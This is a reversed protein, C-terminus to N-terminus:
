PNLFEIISLSGERHTIFAFRNDSTTEIYQPEGFTGHEAVIQKKRIDIISISHAIEFDSMVLFTDDATVDIGFPFHNPTRIYDVFRNANLDFIQISEQSGITVYAHSDTHDIAIQEIQADLTTNHLQVQNRTDYVVFNQSYYDTFLLMEASNTLCVDGPSIFNDISNLFLRKSAFLSDVNLEFLRSGSFYCVDNKFAIAQQQPDIRDQHVSDIIDEDVSFSIVGPSYLAAMNSTNYWLGTLIIGWLRGNYTSTAISVPYGLSDPIRIANFKVDKTEPEYVHVSYEYQDLLYVKSNDDSVAIGSLDNSIHVKNFTYLTLWESSAARGGSNEVRVYGSRAAPSVQVKILTDSLILVTGAPGDGIYVQTSSYDFHAGYINLVSDPMMCTHSIGSIIPSPAIVTIPDSEGFENGALRTVRILFVGDDEFTISHRNVVGNRFGVVRGVSQQLPGDSSLRASDNFTTVRNEFADIATIRIDFPVNVTQSLLTGGNMSEIKFSSLPGHHFTIILKQQIEVDDVFATVTASGVTTPAQLEQTYVGDGIYQVTGLLQGATTRFEIQHGENLNNLLSDKPVISLMTTSKGDATLSDTNVHFQTASPSIGLRRVQFTNSNGSEPGNTNRVTFRFVGAQSIIVRHSDLRGNRFFTTAGGGSSLEGTCSLLVSEKFTPVLNGYEDCATIQIFFPTDVIQRSIPEGSIDAIDFYDLGAPIFEVIPKELLEIGDVSISLVAAQARPLSQLLQSYIGDNEVVQDLLTGATTSIFVHRGFGLKNGLSDKPTVSIQSTTLSNAIIQQPFVSIVTHEQSIGPHAKVTISNSQQRITRNENQVVFYFSGTEVFRVSLKKIGNEFFSDNHVLDFEGNSTIEVPENYSAVRNGYRDHATIQIEFAQGAVQLSDIFNNGSSGIIFRSAAQPECSVVLTSPSNNLHHGFRNKAEVRVTFDTAQRTIYLHTQAVGQEDTPVTITNRLDGFHAQQSNSSFTVSKDPLGTGYNDVVRFQLGNEMVAGPATTIRTGSLTDLLTEFGSVFHMHLPLDLRADPFIDLGSTDALAILVGDNWGFVQVIADLTTIVTVSGSFIGSGPEEEQINKEKLVSSDAKLIRVNVRDFVVQAKKKLSAAKAPKSHQTDYKSFLGDKILQPTSLDDPHDNQTFTREIGEAAPDNLNVIIKIQGTNSQQTPQKHCISAGLLIFGICCLAAIKSYTKM